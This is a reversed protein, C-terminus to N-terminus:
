FSKFIDTVGVLELILLVVFVVGVIGVVSGGAPLAALRGDLRALEADSLAGARAAAQAPDVGFAAIQAAVRDETLANRVRELRAQRDVSVDTAALYESTGITGASVPVGVLTFQASLLIALVARILNRSKM